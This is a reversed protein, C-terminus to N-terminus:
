TVLWHIAYGAAFLIAFGSALTFLYALFSLAVVVSDMIANMM